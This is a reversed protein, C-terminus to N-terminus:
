LGAFEALDSTGRTVRARQNLYILSREMSAVTYIMRERDPMGVQSPLMLDWDESPHPWPTIAHGGDRLTYFVWASGDKLRYFIFGSNAKRDPAWAYEVPASDSTHRPVTPQAAAPGQPEARGWAAQQLSSRLRATAASWQLGTDLVGDQDRSRAQADERDALAQLRDRAKEVLGFVDPQHAWIFRACRRFHQEVYIRKRLDSQVPVTCWFVLSAGAGPGAPYVTPEKESIHVHIAVDIGNDLRGRAIAADKSKADLWALPGTLQAAWSVVESHNRVSSRAHVRQSYRPLTLDAGSMLYEVALRHLLNVAGVLCEPREQRGEHAFHWEREDGQKAVLPSHCVLCRCLCGAGRPVDGVFKVEEDPGIAAFLKTM